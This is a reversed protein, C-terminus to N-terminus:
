VRSNTVILFNNVRGKYPRHLAIYLGDIAVIAQYKFGHKYKYSSYFTQQNQDPR